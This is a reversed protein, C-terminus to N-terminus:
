NKVHLCYNRVEKDIEFVEDLSKPHVSEFACYAKKTLKALELINIKGEFFHKQAVENAANIVVGRTPNKLVDEKIEWIPYRKECIAQFSFSGLAYLNVPPLLSEEAKGLLAFAIPLKMDANALHATMSGDVFDVFAHIISKPEIIADLNECGFLWKAELLEFLKNTMTASDITIKSGMSWNPHKLADTPTMSAIKELPTDRFAGGSATIIMRSVPRGNLLYWLGFHESDIPTIRSTDLLHGAVVLSEKNALALRKGLRLTEISPRLGVFGVLANIITDSKCLGLMEIMGEEGVFVTSHKVHLADSADAIAVYKPHFTEIQENLLAINKGAALAEIELGFRQAIILANVGISGTSGLLVM